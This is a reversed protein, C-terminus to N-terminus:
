WQINVESLIDKGCNMLDEISKIIVKKNLVPSDTRSKIVGTKENEDKEHESGWTANKIKKSAKSPNTFAYM